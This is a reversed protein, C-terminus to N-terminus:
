HGLDFSLGGMVEATSGTFDHEFGRLRFEGILAVRENIYARAGGSGSLTLDTVSIFDRSQRAFGVGGGAFPAFRGVRWHYQLHVEPAFLTAKDGDQLKPRAILFGAELALNSTLARTGRIGVGFTTGTGSLDFNVPGALATFTHRAATEQASAVRVGVFVLVVVVAFLSLNRRM